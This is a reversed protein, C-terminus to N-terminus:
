KLIVSKPSYFLRNCKKHFSNCSDTANVLDTSEEVRVETPFTTDQTMYTVTFYMTLFSQGKIMLQSTLWWILSLM